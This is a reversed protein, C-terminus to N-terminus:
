RDSVGPCGLRRLGGVVLRSLVRGAYTASAVYGPSRGLVALGKISRVMRRPGPFSNPAKQRGVEPGMGGSSTSMSRDYGMPGTIESQVSAKEKPPSSTVLPHHYHWFEGRPPWLKFRVSGLNLLCLTQRRPTVTSSRGIISRLMRISPWIRPLRVRRALLDLSHIFLRWGTAALENVCESM